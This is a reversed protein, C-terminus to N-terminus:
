TEFYKCVIDIAGDILRERDIENKGFVIRDITASLLDFTVIAVAEIDKAKIIDKFRLFYNVTVKLTEKRQEELIDAVKQNNYSLINLERNLEKSDEHVKILTNILTHLFSRFDTKLLEPNNITENKTMDYKDHYKDLIEFFVTDKDKFYSYLSGISVDARQAIENTTTKYYGKECFLQFASDLIKEKMEISRSQKPNRIEKRVAKRISKEITREISKSM